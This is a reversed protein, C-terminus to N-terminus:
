SYAYGIARAYTQAQYNRKKRDREDKDRVFDMCSTINVTTRHEKVSRKMLVKSVLGDIKKVGDKVVASINKQKEMAKMMEKIEEAIEQLAITEEAHMQLLEEVYGEALDLDRKTANSFISIESVGSALSTQSNQSSASGLRPRREEM